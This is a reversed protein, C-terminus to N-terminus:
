IAMLSKNGLANNSLNLEIISPKMSLIVDIAGDDKIGNNSFDVIRAKMFRLCNGMAKAYHPGM